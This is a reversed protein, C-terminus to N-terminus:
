KRKQKQCLYSLGGPNHTQFALFDEYHSELKSKSQFTCASPLEYTAEFDLFAHLFAVTPYIEEINPIEIAQATFQIYLDQVIKAYKLQCGGDRDRKGVGDGFICTLSDTEDTCDRFSDTCLLRYETEYFYKSVMLYMLGAVLHRSSYRIANHDLSALDLIQMTERFRRYSHHSPHKFLVVLSPDLTSAEEGFVSLMYDDWLSMVVNAWAFATPPLIRWALARFVKLEMEKIEGLTYGNDAAKAFDTIKPNWIEETKAAIFMAALGLLQLERKGVNETVDLFRDVYSISM